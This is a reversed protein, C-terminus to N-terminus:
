ASSPGSRSATATSGARSSTGTPSTTPQGRSSSVVAAPRSSRRSRTTTSPRTSPVVAGPPDLRRVRIDRAAFMQEQWAVLPLGAPDVALSAREPTFTGFPDRSRVLFPASTPAGEADLRRTLISSVLSTDTATWAVVFGGSQNAAISPLLAGTASGSIEIEADAPVPQAQALTATLLAALALAWLPGRRM